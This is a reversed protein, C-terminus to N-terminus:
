KALRKKRFFIKELPLRIPLVSDVVESETMGFFKSRSPSSYVVITKLTPDVLWCSKVGMAFYARFKPIIDHSSQTPSVIEVCLLPMKEVRLVDVDEAPEIYDFDEAYYLCVDPKLDLEAKVKCKRLIDQRETVSVDLSLETAANFQDEL